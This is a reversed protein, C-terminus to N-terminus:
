DGLCAPRGAGGGGGDDGGGGVADGTVVNDGERKDDEGGLKDNDRGERGRVHDCCIQSGPHSRQHGVGPFNECTKERSM